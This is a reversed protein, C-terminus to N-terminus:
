YELTRMAIIVATNDNYHKMASFLNFSVSLQLAKTLNELFPLM